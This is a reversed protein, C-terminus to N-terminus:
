FRMLTQEWAALKGAIEAKRNTGFTNNKNERLEKVRSAFQRNATSRGLKYDLSQSSASEEVPLQSIQLELETLTGDETDYSGQLAKRLLPVIRRAQEKLGAYEDGLQKVFKPEGDGTGGEFWVGEFVLDAERGSFAARAALNEFPLYEDSTEGPSFLKESLGFSNTIGAEGALYTYSVINKGSVNKLTVRLVYDQDRQIKTTSVIQLAKTKNVITPEFGQPITIDSVM